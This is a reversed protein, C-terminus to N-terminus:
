QAVELLKKTVRSQVKLYYDLEANNLEEDEWKEFDEVFDSYKTLYKSYDSLLSLDAPNKQYKKMFAVYDDM